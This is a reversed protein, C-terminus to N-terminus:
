YKIVFYMKVNRAHVQNDTRWYASSSRNANFNAGDFNSVSGQGGWDRFRNWNETGFCGDTSGVVGRYGNWFSGTINPLSGDSTSGPPAIGAGSIVRNVIEPL